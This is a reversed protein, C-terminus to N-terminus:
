RSCQTIPYNTFSDDSLGGRLPHTLHQSTWSFAHHVPSCFCPTLMGQLVQLSNCHLVNNSLAGVYMRVYRRVACYCACLPQQTRFKESQSKQPQAHTHCAVPQVMFTHLEVYVCLHCQM